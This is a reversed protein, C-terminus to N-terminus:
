ECDHTLGLVTAGDVYAKRCSRELVTDLRTGYGVIAERSHAAASHSKSGILSPGSIAEELIHVRQPIRLITLERLARHEEISYTIVVTLTDVPLLISVGHEGIATRSYWSKPM